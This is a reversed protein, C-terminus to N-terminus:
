SRAGGKAQPLDPHRRPLPRLHGISSRLALGSLLAQHGCGVGCPAAIWSCFRKTLTPQWVAVAATPYPLINSVVCFPGGRFLVQWVFVSWIVM